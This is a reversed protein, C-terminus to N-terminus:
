YACDTKDKRSRATPLAEALDASTGRAHRLYGDNVMLQENSRVAPDYRSERRELMIRLHKDSGYVAHWASSSVPSRHSPRSPTMRFEHGSADRLM